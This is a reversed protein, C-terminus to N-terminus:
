HCLVPPELWLHGPNPERHSGAKQSEEIKAEYCQVEKIELMLCSSQLMIIKQQVDNWINKVSYNLAIATPRMRFIHRGCASYIDVVSQVPKTLFM